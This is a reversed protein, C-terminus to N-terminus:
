KNGGNSKDNEPNTKSIQYLKPLLIMVLGTSIALAVGSILRSGTRVNKFKEIANQANEKLSKESVNKSFDDYYHQMQGILDSFKTKKGEPSILVETFDDTYDEINHKKASAFADELKSILQDKSKGELGKIDKNMIKQFINRKKADETNIIEKIFNNDFVNEKAFSNKSGTNIVSQYFEEKSPTKGNKTLEGIINSFDEINKLPVQNAKGTLKTALSMVIAPVIFMSPSTTFERIAVEAGAVYNLKGDEKKNRNLAIATRPINAGLVDQLIFQAPFGGRGIADWFMILGDAGGKFAPKSQRTQNKNEVNNISNVQIKQIKM